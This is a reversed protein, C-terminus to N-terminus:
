SACPGDVGAVRKEFIQFTLRQGPPNFPYDMTKVLHYGLARYHGEIEHAFTHVSDTFEETHVVHRRSM